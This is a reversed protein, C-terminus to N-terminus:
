ATLRAFRRRLAGAAGILGTGLLIFSSPEPTPNATVNTFVFNDDNYDLDSGSLPKLGTVPLDEM